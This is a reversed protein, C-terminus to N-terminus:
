ESEKDQRKKGIVFVTVLGLITTTGFIGAITDHGLYALFFAIGMGFIALIFGFIQGRGSQKLEEKIAHKELEIRHASQNETMKMIREAGNPILDNYGKLLTPPPLPGSFASSTNISLKTIIRIVENRKDEPVYQIIEDIEKSLQLKNENDEIKQSHLHNQEINEEM